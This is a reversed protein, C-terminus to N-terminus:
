IAGIRKLYAFNDSHGRFYIQKREMNEMGHKLALYRALAKHEEASLSVAGEGEIVQPIVPFAKQLSIAERWLEAYEADGTRLDACIDSDIQSFANDIREALNLFADHETNM